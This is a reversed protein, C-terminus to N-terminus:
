GVMGHLVYKTDIVSFDLREYLRLAGINSVQTGVLVPKLPEQALLAGVLATGAGDGRADAAVAILDIVREDGKDLILHFGIVRGSTEAVLMRDGRRGDFWSGAWDAKIAGAVEDTISPDLHFRSVTYDTAAIRMVADRDDPSADRITMPAAGRRAPAPDEAPPPAADRWLTVNVDVVRMGGAELTAVRVVDACDVKAQLFAPADVGTGDDGEELTWVPRGLRESLWPDARM